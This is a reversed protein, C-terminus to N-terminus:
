KKDELLDKAFIKALQYAVLMTIVFNILTSIFAGIKLAVEGPKTTGDPQAIMGQGLSITLSNLDIGSLIRGIIPNILNGVLSNVLTTAAGGIIVGIALAIANTKTLFKRFGEM